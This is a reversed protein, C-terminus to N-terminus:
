LCTVQRAGNWHVGPRPTLINVVPPSASATRRAVEANGNRVVLSHARADWPLVEVFAPPGSLDHTGESPNFSRSALVQEADDRLELTFQCTRATRCRSVLLRRSASTMTLQNRTPSRQLRAWSSCGTPM